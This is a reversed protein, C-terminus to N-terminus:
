GELGRLHGGVVAKSIENVDTHYQGSRLQAAISAVHQQHTASVSAKALGIFNAADSLAVTDSHAGQRQLSSSRADPASGEVAGAGGDIRNEVASNTIRM